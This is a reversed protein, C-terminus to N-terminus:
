NILFSFDNKLNIDEEYHNLTQMLTETDEIISVNSIFGIDEKEKLLSKTLSLEEELEKIREEYYDILEDYSENNRCYAINLRGLYPIDNFTGM